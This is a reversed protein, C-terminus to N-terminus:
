HLFVFYMKKKKPPPTPPLLIKLLNPSFVTALNKVGMKNLPEDAVKRLHVLLYNLTYLAVPSLNGLAKRHCFLFYHLGQKQWMRRFHFCTHEFHTRKMSIIMLFTKKEGWAMHTKSVLVILAQRPCRKLVKGRHSVKQGRLVKKWTVVNKM